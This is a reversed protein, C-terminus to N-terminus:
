NEFQRKKNKYIKFIGLGLGLSLLILINSNIPVQDCYAPDAAYEAQCEEYAELQDPDLIQSGGPNLPDDIYEPELELCCNEDGPQSPGGPGGPQAFGFNLSFLCAFLVIYKKM